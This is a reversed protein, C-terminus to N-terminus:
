VAKYEMPTFRLGNVSQEADTEAFGLKRYIPVAYPSSNVTIRDTRRQATLYNFLQKGIGKGQYKEDVFFLAVHSGANRAAIMGILEDSRFAGYMCLKSTYNEDHISKRFEEIGEQPYEPAEYKLFVRWALALANETEDTELKRIRCKLEM